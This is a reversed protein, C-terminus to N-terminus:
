QIDSNTSNVEEQEILKSFEEYRQKAQEEENSFWFILLPLICLLILL